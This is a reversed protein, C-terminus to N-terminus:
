PQDEGQTEQTPQPLTVDSAYPVRSRAVVVVDVVLSGVVGAVISIFLILPNVWPQGKLAISLVIFVVFKILWSGLVIGFFAGVFLDTGTFRNALLISAATIGTFVLAMATGILAGVVGPGGAVIAGIVGMVVAIALALLAGYKLARKLVPNSTPVTRSNPAPQSPTTSTM